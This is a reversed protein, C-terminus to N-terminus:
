GGHVNSPVPTDPCFIFFFNSRYGTQNPRSFYKVENFIVPRERLLDKERRPSEKAMVHDEESILCVSTFDNM